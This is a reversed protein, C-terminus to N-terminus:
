VLRTKGTLLLTTMGDKIQKYKKIKYQITLIELDMAALTQAIEIQIEKVPLFVEMPRIDRPHIHPQAGGTQLNYIKEQSSKLVYYIYEIEYDENEEITSCDSAFIPYNHFSVYGASAGSASITITKGTRNAINHYYAPGKGRAIVPINGSIRTKGTILQGKKIVAIEGLTAKVWGEKPRLLEQMVGEKVSRKKAILHELGDILNDFDSLVQAIAKQEELPPVPLLISKLQPKSVGYVKMGVALRFMQAKAINSNLIAGRYYDAFHGNDRLLFTHLGSIVPKNGVGIIEVSKNIGSIDESADVMVIDGDLVFEYKAQSKDVFYKIGSRVNFSSSKIAHILGYHLCGVEGEQKMQAKSYSSTSFFSFLQGISKVNWEEPILGINSQKYGKGALEM